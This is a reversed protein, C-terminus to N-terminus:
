HVKFIDNLTALLEIGDATQYYARGCFKTAMDCTDNAGCEANTGQPCARAFGGAVAMANLTAPADGIATDAGFGVVITKINKARLAAIQATTYDSDLCGQSCFSSPMCATAPVLTCKCAAVNTCTNANNANCNPSGDTILLVYDDRPATPDPDLLPAYTGLFKLSDGTPTGGGVTLVQIQANVSAAASMMDAALDTNNPALPVRIDPSQTAGCADISGTSNAVATPYIAMGMWAVAANNGLFTAMASKLEQLRTSCGAACVPNGSMNCGPTCPAVQDNSAFNMSGSKDVLLMVNPKLPVSAGGDPGGDLSGTPPDTPTSCGMMLVLAAAAILRM